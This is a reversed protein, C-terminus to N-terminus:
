PLNRQFLRSALRLRGGDKNAGHSGNWKFFSAEDTRCDLQGCGPLACAGGNFRQSLYNSLQLLMCGMVNALRHGLAGCHLSHVFDHPLLSIIPSSHSANALYVLMLGVVSPMSLFFNRHSLFNTVGALSGVTMTANVGTVSHLRVIDSPSFLQSLYLLIITFVLFLICSRSFLYKGPLVFYM